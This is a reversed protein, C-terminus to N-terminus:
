TAKWFLERSCAKFLAGLRAVTMRQALTGWDSDKTHNTFQAAKTQVRDLANIQREICPDWCAAEYELVPRGLSTYVLCKASRNGKKLVRMVFHLAKYAKQAIYNVQDAM